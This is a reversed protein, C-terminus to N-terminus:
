ILERWQQLGDDTRIFEVAMEETISEPTTQRAVHNKRFLLVLVLFRCTWSFRDQPTETPSFLSNIGGPPQLELARDRIEPTEFTVYTGPRHAFENRIKRILNLNRYESESILGLAYAAEIRASFDALPRMRGLLENSAREDAIFFGRLVKELEQDVYASAIVAAARQSLKQALTLWENFEGLEPRLKEFPNDVKRKMEAIERM